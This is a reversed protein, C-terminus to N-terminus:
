VENQAVIILINSQMQSKLWRKEGGKEKEREREPREWRIILSCPLHQPGASAQVAQKQAEAQDNRRVEEMSPWKSGTGGATPWVPLLPWEAASSCRERHVVIGWRRSGAEGNTMQALGPM